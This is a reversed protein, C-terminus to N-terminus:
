VGAFRRNFAALADGCERWVRNTPTSVRVDVEDDKLYITFRGDQPRDTVNLKLRSILKVRSIIKPWADSPLTFVDQLIGDIRLRAKIDHQEAEIHIDSARANLAIAILLTMTETLSIGSMQEQVTRIDSFGEKFKDLDEQTVKVGSVEEKIKPLQNYLRLVATLSTESM